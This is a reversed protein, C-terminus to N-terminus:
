SEFYARDAPLNFTEPHFDYVTNGYLRKAKNLHRALSDKRGIAWSGPFHNLVQYWRISRYQDFELHKGWRVNWNSRSTTRKFGNKKLAALVCNYEHAQEYKFSLTFPPNPM